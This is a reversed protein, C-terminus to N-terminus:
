YRFREFTNYVLEVEIEYEKCFDDLQKTYKFVNWYGSRFYNEVQFQRKINNFRNFDKVIIAEPLM